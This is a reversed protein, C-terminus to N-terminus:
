YKTGCGPCKSSATWTRKLGCERCYQKLQRRARHIAYGAALLLLLIIGLPGLLLAFLVVIGIVLWTAIVVFAGLTIGNVFGM